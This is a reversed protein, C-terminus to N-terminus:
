VPAEIGEARGAYHVARIRPQRADHVVGRVAGDDVRFQRPVDNKKKFCRDPIASIGIM